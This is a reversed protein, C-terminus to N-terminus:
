SKKFCDSKPKINILQKIDDKSLQSYISRLEQFYGLPERKYRGETLLGIRRYNSVELRILKDLLYDKSNINM